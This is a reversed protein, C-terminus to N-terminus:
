GSKRFELVSLIAGDPTKITFLKTFSETGGDNMMWVTYVMEHHELVVLSKRLKSIYLSRESVDHALSHPLNVERFEESTVDFSIILNRSSFEGDMTFRDTALGYLFGNKRCKVDKANPVVVAVAKRISINWLVDMPKKLQYYGFFCLLGHSSGIISSEDPM